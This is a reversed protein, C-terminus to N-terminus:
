DQLLTELVDLMAEENASDAGVARFAVSGDQAIVYFTPIGEVFYEQAVEDGNIVIPYTYGNATMFAAPDNSEWTNVGIVIVDDGYTEHIDQLFPMVEKCPGCWTSWFDMIVIDGRLDELVMTDGGPTELTWLPAPTGVAVAGIYEESIFGEPCDIQFVSMEPQIDTNLNILVATTEYVVGLAGDPASVSVKNAIPLFTEKDFWWTSVMPSMQVELVYCLHGEITEQELMEYGDANLEMGYPEGTFLYEMMVVGNPVNRLLRDAGMELTGYHFVQAESDVYCINEGNTALVFAGGDDGMTATYDVYICADDTTVGKRLVVEGIVSIDTTDENIYFGELSIDYSVTNTNLVAETVGNLLSEPHMVTEIDINVTTETEDTETCALACLIISIILITKMAIREKV